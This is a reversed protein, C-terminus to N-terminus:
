DEPLPVLKVGINRLQANRSEWLSLLEDQPMRAEVAADIESKARNYYEIEQDQRQVLRQGLVEMRLIDGNQLGNGLAHSDLLALQLRPFFQHREPNQRRRLRLGRGRFRRGRRLRLLSRAARIAPQAREVACCFSALPIRPPLTAHYAPFGALIVSLCIFM